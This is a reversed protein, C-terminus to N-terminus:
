IEKDHQKVSRVARIIHKQQNKKTGETTAIEDSFRGYLMVEDSKFTQQVDIVRQNTSGRWKANYSKKELVFRGDVLVDIECLLERAMYDSSILLQELTYGTYCWVNLGNAHAAKAIELCATPQAFPEGGSLTVGDLLPNSLMDDIITKADIIKGGDFDHTQPNQCGKCGHSCGQCFVVYRLGEGDVISEAITGAIRM